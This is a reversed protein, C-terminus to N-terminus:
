RGAVTLLDAFRELYPAVLALTVVLYGITAYLM